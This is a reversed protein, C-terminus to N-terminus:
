QMVFFSYVMLILALIVFAGCLWKIVTKGQQELKADRKAHRIKNKQSM